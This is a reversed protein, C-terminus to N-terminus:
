KALIIPQVIDRWIRYGEDNMHLGDKVFLEKRPEGNSDLMPKTVDVYAVFKKDKMSAAILENAKQGKDYIKWRAISPKISIFVIRTEPLAEHVVKVFQKFDECVQDPTKGAALDNDGAYFVIIKPKYPIVIRNAYYVSDSIESGGFGRNMVPLDPFSEEVKWMRISSSGVFLIPDKPPPKVRDQAEFAQIDKEWRLAKVDEARLLSGSLIFLFSLVLCRSM